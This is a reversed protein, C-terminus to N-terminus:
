ADYEGYTRYAARQASRTRLRKTEDRRGREARQAKREFTQEARDTRSDYAM